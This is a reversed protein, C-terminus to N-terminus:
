AAPLLHTGRPTMWVVGPWAPMGARPGRIARFWAGSSRRSERGAIRVNRATRVVLVLGAVARGADTTAHIGAVDSALRESEVRLDTLVTVVRVVLREAPRLVTSVYRIPHPPRDFWCADGHRGGLVWGGDLALQAFADLHISERGRPAAIVNAGVADAVSLWLGLPVTGGHGLEMRSITSPSTGATAAIEAQTLGTRVRQARVQRGLDFVTDRTTKRM